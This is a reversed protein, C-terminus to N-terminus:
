ITQSAHSTKFEPLLLLLCVSLFALGAGFYFPAAPSFWQWLLGAILSAPFAAVGIAANFLGYATGRHDSPVLDAVLASAAGQFVGYYLGYFIYLAGVHWATTAIGFGLYILAYILWGGIILKRRGLHDSLIGAPFSSLSVILNFAAVLLFIETTSFGVTQARLMLFADSSNGLTFLVVVALFAKFRKDLSKWRLFDLGSYKSFGSPSSPPERVGAALVFVAALGPVVSLLVLAQYGTHTLTDEDSQMISLIWAALVLGVVAGIKDMAKNFGFARGRYKELTVDAILADRPATRIGKGVRDLFRVALVLGWTNAFYLLPKTFGSLGYGWLTLTKKKGLRDSLYGSVIKLLTATSEAVGEIFGITGTKVGLVNALFLPLTRVTVESSLDNLLSVIGLVKVNRDLGKLGLQHGELVKEAYGIESPKSM